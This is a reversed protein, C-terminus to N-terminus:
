DLTSTQSRYRLFISPADALMDVLLESEYNHGTGVIGEGFADQEM